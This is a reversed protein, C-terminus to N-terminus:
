LQWANPFHRLLPEQRTPAALPAFWGLLRNILPSAHRVHLDLPILDMRLHLKPAYGFPSSQYFKLGHALAWRIIGRFTVHYLHLPLADELIMGLDNDYITDGHVTCFNFAIMRGARKWIFYRTHEPMREGLRLFYASDFVEFQQDARRAVCEYLAHLARAERATIHNKVELRIPEALSDVERFKRRLSKRTARGLGHQMYDEFTSFDLRLRVGPLSPLRTYSEQESFATRYEVPLDKFLTLRVRKHRAFSAISDSLHSLVQPVENLLPVGIQGEGVICGVMLLRFSLWRRFPSLLRRVTRPLSVTVDQEVLFLPQLVRLKGTADRVLLYFQAFEHGFTEELTQYYRRDKWGSPFLAQWLSPAIGQSRDFVEFHWGGGSTGTLIPVFSPSAASPQHECSPATRVAPLDLLKTAPHTAKLDTLASASEGRRNDAPMEDVELTPM